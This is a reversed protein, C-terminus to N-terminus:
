ITQHKFNAYVYIDLFQAWQAYTYSGTVDRLTDYNVSTEAHAINLLERYHVCSPLLGVRANLCANLSKTM